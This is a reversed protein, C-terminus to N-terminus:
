ARSGECFSLAVGLLVIFYYFIIYCLSLPTTTLTVSLHPWVLKLYLEQTECNPITQASIRLM